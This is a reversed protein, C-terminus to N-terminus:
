FCTCCLFRLTGQQRAGPHRSMGTALHKTLMHPLSPTYVVSNINGEANRYSTFRSRFSLSRRNAKSVISRLLSGYKMRLWKPLCRCFCPCNGSSSSNATSLRALSNSCCRSERFYFGQKPPLPLLLLPLAAAAAQKDLPQERRAERGGELCIIDPTELICM